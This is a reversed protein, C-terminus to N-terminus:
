STKDIEQCREEKQWVGPKRSETLSRFIFLIFLIARFLYRMCRHQDGEQTSPLVIGVQGAGTLPVNSQQQVLPTAATPAIARDRSLEEEEEKDEIKAFWNKAGTGLEQAQKEEEREETLLQEQEQEQSQEQSQAEGFYYDTAERSYTARRRPERCLTPAFYM